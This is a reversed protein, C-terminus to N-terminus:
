NKALAANETAIQYTSMAQYCFKQLARQEDVHYLKIRHYSYVRTEPLAVMRFKGALCSDEFASECTWGHLGDPSGTGDAPQAHRRSSCGLPVVNKQKWLM